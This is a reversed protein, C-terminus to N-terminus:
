PTERYPNFFKGYESEIEDLIGNYIELEQNYKENTQNFLSLLDSLNVADGRSLNEAICYLYWSANYRLMSMKAGSESLDMYLDIISLYKEESTFDRIEDFFTKTNL